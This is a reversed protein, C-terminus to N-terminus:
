ASIPQRRRKSEGGHIVSMVQNMQELLSKEHDPLIASDKRDGLIVNLKKPGSESSNRNYIVEM